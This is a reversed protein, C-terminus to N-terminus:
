ARAMTALVRLKKGLPIRLAEVRNAAHMAAFLDGEIDIEGDVYAEAFNLPSPDDILRAFVARSRLVVSFRPVGAGIRAEAGDWLRFTFPEEIYGFIEALISAAQRGGLRSALLRIM